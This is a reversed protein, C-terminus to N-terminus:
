RLVPAVVHRLNAWAVYLLPACAVLLGIVPEFLVVGAALGLVLLAPLVLYVKRVVLYLSPRVLSRVRAAPDAALLVLVALLTMVVLASAVAFFPVLVVGFSTRAVVVGDLALVSVSAAAVGWAGVARPLSRWYASWFPWIVVPRADDEGLRAFCAFAGVLAPACLCSLVAFFPWAAHPERVIALAALLPSVTAALLVNVMLGVYVTSFIKEYTAQAAPRLPNRRAIATVDSV